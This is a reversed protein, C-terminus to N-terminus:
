RYASALGPTWVGPIPSATMVQLLRWRVTGASPQFGGPRKRRTEVRGPVSSPMVGLFEGSEDVAEYLM